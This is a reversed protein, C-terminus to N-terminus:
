HQRSLFRVLKRAVRNPDDLECEWIRLVQWGMRKLKAANRRDRAINRDLKENWYQVRTKPRHNGISCRHQHWFCGHVFVVQQTHSIVIDPSGPLDSRHLRYRYGLAYILRRVALEPKTNKSRILAMRVSRQTPTLTDM